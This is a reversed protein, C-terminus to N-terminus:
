VPAFGETSGDSPVNSTASRGDHGTTDQGGTVTWIDSPGSGWIGTAAFSPDPTVDGRRDIAAVDGGDCPTFGETSEDSSDNSDGGSM